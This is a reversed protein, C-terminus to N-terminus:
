SLIRDSRVFWFCGFGRGGFAVPNFGFYYRSLSIGLRGSLGFSGLGGYFGPFRKELREKENENKKVGERKLEM